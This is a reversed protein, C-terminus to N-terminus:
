KKPIKSLDIKGIIKFNAHEVDSKFINKKIKQTEEKNLVHLEKQYKLKDKEKVQKGNRGIHYKCCWKCKYPVVKSIREDKSNLVKCSYIADDLTDFKKKDKYIRGGTLEIRVLTQCGIKYEQNEM